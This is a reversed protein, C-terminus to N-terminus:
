GCLMSPDSIAPGPSVEPLRHIVRAMHAQYGFCGFQRKPPKGRGTSLSTLPHTVGLDVAHTAKAPSQNRDM